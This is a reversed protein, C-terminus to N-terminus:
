KLKAAASAMDYVIDVLHFCGPGGGILKGVERKPFSDISKGIFSDAATYSLEYCPAHPARCVIMDFANINRNALDYTIESHMEHFSDNYVGNIIAEGENKQLIVYSKYKNYFNETRYHEYAGIYTPWEEIPPATNWYARCYGDKDIRWDEEYEERTKFGLEELLYTEAQIMGRVCEILLEKINGDGSFDKLDKIAKVGDAQASGGILEPIDAEVRKSMDPCRHISYYARTIKFEDKTACLTASYEYRTSLLMAQSILEKENLSNAYNIWAGQELIKIM